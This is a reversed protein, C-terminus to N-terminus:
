IFKSIDLMSKVSKWLKELLSARKAPIVDCSNLDNVISDIYIRRRYYRSAVAKESIHFDEAYRRFASPKDFLVIYRAITRDEANIWRHRM